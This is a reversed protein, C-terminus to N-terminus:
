GEETKNREAQEILWTAAATGQRTAVVRDFPSPSGGKLAVFM